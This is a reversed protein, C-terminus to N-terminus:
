EDLEKDEKKNESPETLRFGAKIANVIEIIYLSDGLYKFSDDAIMRQADLLDKTIM